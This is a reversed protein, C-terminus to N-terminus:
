TTMELRDEKLLKFSFPREIEIVRAGFEGALKDFESRVEDDTLECSIIEYEGSFWSFEDDFLRRAYLRFAPLAAIARDHYQIKLAGAFAPGPDGALFGAFFDGDLWQDAAVAIEPAAVEVLRDRVAPPDGFGALFPLDDAPTLIKKPRGGALRWLLEAIAANLYSNDYWCSVCWRKATTPLAARQEPKWHWAAPHPEFGERMTWTGGRPQRVARVSALAALSELDADLDDFTAANGSLAIEGYLHTIAGWRLPFLKEITPKTAILWDVAEDPSVADLVFRGFFDDDALKQPTKTPVNRAARIEAELLGDCFISLRLSLRSEFVPNPGVELAYLRGKWRFRAADDVGLRARLRDIYSGAMARKTSTRALVIALAIAPLLVLLFAATLEPTM